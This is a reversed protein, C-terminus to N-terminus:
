QGCLESLTNYTGTVAPTDLIEVMTCDTASAGASIAIGAGGSDEMRVHTLRLEANNRLTLNGNDVRSYWRSEGGGGRITVHELANDPSRSDDFFLGRWNGAGTQRSAFLIPETTTGV